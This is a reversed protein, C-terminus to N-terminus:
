TIARSEMIEALEFGFKLIAIYPHEELDEVTSQQPPEFAVCGIFVSATMVLIGVADRMCAILVSM